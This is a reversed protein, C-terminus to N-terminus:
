GPAARPRAGRGAAAAGGAGGGGACATSSAGRRACCSWPPTAGTTTGSGSVGSGMVRGERATMPMSRPVVLEQAATTRSPRGYRMGERSPYWVMGEM